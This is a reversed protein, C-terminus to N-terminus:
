TDTQSSRAKDLTPCPPHCAPLMAQLYVAADDPLEPLAPLVRNADHDRFDAVRDRVIFVNNLWDASVRNREANCRWFSNRADLRDPQSVSLQRCPFEQMSMVQIVPRSANPPPMQFACFMASTARAPIVWMISM